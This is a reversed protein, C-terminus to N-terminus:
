ATLSGSGNKFYTRSIKESELDKGYQYMQRVLEDNLEQNTLSVNGQKAIQKNLFTFAYHRM